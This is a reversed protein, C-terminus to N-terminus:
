ENDAVEQEIYFLSAQEDYKLQYEKNAWNARVAKDTKDDPNIYACLSNQKGSGKSLKHVDLYARESFLRFYIRTSEKTIKSVQIYPKVSFVDAAKNLFGFRVSYNASKGGNKNLTIRVDYDRKHPVYTKKTRNEFLTNVDM